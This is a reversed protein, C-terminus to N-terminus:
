YRGSVSISVSADPAPSFIADASLAVCYEACDLLRWSPPSGDAGWVDTSTECEGGCEVLARGIQGDLTLTGGAPVYGVQYVSHPQCREVEAVEECTLGDHADAREYIVITLRRLDSEGATVTIIPVDASWRPRDSLDLEHWETNVALAQCFCTDPAVPVPPVAPRCSPDACAARPDPCDALRCTAACPDVPPEDWGLWGDPCADDFDVVVAGPPCPEETLEICVPDPDPVSPGGHVCWEICADSDDRPVPAELVPVPDTWAWPTAATLVMEVTLIDAGISCGGTGSCGDGTRSIVRPGEVLAVRRLTRRHRAAFEEPDMDEAPCCQYVTLCDGGCGTGTCGQLAQGLWHLGYEVACCTAGLLIGTVTITRPQARGPGLAAGGTVAGTVTRTVPREDMGEISLVLLGAFDGSEPVDPDWWPADDEWPTTYPDDGITDATLTECGCAGATTLPSGVSELYADLRASNVIEVGGINLYDTLPM